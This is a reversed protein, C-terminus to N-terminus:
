ATPVAAGERLLLDAVRKRLLQKAREESRRLRQFVEDEGEGGGESRSWGGESRRLRQFVEDEGAGGGESRSVGGESRRLRQFVEDERQGGGEASRSVGGENVSLINMVLAASRPTWSASPLSLAIDAMQEAPIAYTLM